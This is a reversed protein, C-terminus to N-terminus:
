LFLKIIEPLNVNENDNEPTGSTFTVLFKSELLIL